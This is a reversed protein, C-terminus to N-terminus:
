IASVKEQILIAVRSNVSSHNRWSTLTAHCSPQSADGCQETTECEPPLLISCSMEHVKAEVSRSELKSFGDGGLVRFIFAYDIEDPGPVFCVENNNEM